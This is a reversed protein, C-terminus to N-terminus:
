GTNVRMTPIGLRYALEICHITHDVNKQRTEKDPRLFTQHTSFGCLDLGNLFARRKLRQLPDNDEHEMQRHLIEVGDFGMEAALDICTEISRFEKRRFQYYSYTSVAIRNPRPRDKKPDDQPAAAPAAAQGAALSLGAVAASQQLFRRRNVTM